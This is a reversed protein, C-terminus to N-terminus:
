CIPEYAKSKLNEFGFLEETEEAIYKVKGLSDRFPTVSYIYHNMQYNPFVVPANATFDWCYINTQGSRNVNALEPEISLVYRGIKERYEFFLLCNANVEVIKKVMKEKLMHKSHQIFEVSQYNPFLDKINLSIILNFNKDLIDIKNSNYDTQVFASLTLHGISSSSWDIPFLDSSNKFQYVPNVQYVPNILNNNQNLHESLKDLNLLHEWQYLKFDINNKSKVIFYKQGVPQIKRIGNIVFVKEMQNKELNYFWISYDTQHLGICLISESYLFVKLYMTCLFGTKRHTNWQAIQKGTDLNKLTIINPELHHPDSSGCVSITQGNYRVLRLSGIFGNSSISNHEYVISDAM